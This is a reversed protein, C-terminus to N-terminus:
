EPAVAAASLTADFGMKKPATPTWQEWTAGLSPNNPNGTRMFAAVSKQLINSMALRGPENLATWGFANLSMGFSGFMFPIDETHWAGYFDNWPAPEKNWKFNYM